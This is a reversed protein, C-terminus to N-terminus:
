WYKNEWEADYQGAAAFRQVDSAAESLVIPPVNGLKILRPDNEGVYDGYRCTRHEPDARLFALGLLLLNSTHIGYAHLGDIRLAVDIGAERFWKWIVPIQGGDGRAGLEWGAKEWCSRMTGGNVVYGQCAEWWTADASAADNHVVPRGLQAFPPTVDYDAVHQQWAQATQEDMDLPHALRVHGTDPLTVPADDADTLTGDALPRFLLTLRHPEQADVLGWILGQAPARLLPHEIFLSHWRAITWTRQNVLARELRQRLLGGAHKVQANLAKWQTYAHAALEPDDKQGPKPLSKRAKGGQDYVDLTGDMRLRVIFQRAGYNFHRKGQADFGLRPTARDLLEERSVGLQEAAQDFIQRAIDTIGHKKGRNRTAIADLEALALDSDLLALAHAARAALSTRNGKSQPGLRGNRTWADIKQRLPAVLRDDGLAGCLPLLWSEQAQEGRECWGLWLCLALDCASSRDILALAPRIQRDLQHKERTRSQRYFLYTLVQPPVATGDTWRLAAGQAPEFWGPLPRRIYKLVAEAEASIALPDVPTAATASEPVGVADLIAEKVRAAREQDLRAVLRTRATPTDIQQLARVAALRVTISSHELVPALENVVAEGQQGLWNVAIDRVRRVPHALLEIVYALQGDWTRELLIDHLINDSGYRGNEEEQVWRQLLPLVRAFDHDAMLRAGIGAVDYWDQQEGLAEEALYWYTEPDFQFACKLATIRLPEFTSDRFIAVALDIHRAPDYEMLAKLASIRNRLSITDWATLFADIQDHPHM